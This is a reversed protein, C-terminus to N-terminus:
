FWQKMYDAAERGATLADPRSLCEVAVGYPYGVDKLAQMVQGFDFHGHGPYWRDSDAAHVHVIRNGAQLIAERIDREEINMHFTDIHLGICSSGLRDILEIGEEIRNLNDCDYRNMVEVGLVVGYKEAEELCSKLSEMQHYEYAERSSCDRIRGRVLGLIVVAHPYDKATRIHGCIREVAGKRVASDDSALLLKDKGYAEGTGISTLELGFRDLGDKLRGRDIEDSNRIHVEAGQYGAEKVAGLIEDLGGRYIIPARESVDSETCTASLIM